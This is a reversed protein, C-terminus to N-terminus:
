IVAYYATSSSNLNIHESSSNIVILFLVILSKKMIPNQDKIFNSNKEM